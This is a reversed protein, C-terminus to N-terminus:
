KDISVLEVDFILTSGPPITAGAGSDGYALAAPIFLQWKAGTKMKQLAETWGKIVGGVPFSATGGHQESNDFVTGDLLSGRYRVTVTDTSKPMAGAGEKVVKYQLGDPLTQVGPKGKNATLFDEGVKTNKESSASNQAAVGQQAAQRKASMDKAFAMLIEHVQEDTMQQKGGLLVDRVAAAFQAPEFDIPQRKLTQAVDVGLSYGLKEKDSQPATTAQALLPTVTGLLACLITLPLLTKM